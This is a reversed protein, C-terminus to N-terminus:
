TSHLPGRRHPVGGTKQPGGRRGQLPDPTTEPTREAIQASAEPAAARPRAVL